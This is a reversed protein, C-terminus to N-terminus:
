TRRFGPAYVGVTFFMLYYAIEFLKLVEMAMPTPFIKELPASPPKELIKGPPVFTIFNTKEWEFSFFVVKKALFNLIWPPGQRGKRHGHGNRPLKIVAYNSEHFTHIQIVEGYVFIGRLIQFSVNVRIMLM